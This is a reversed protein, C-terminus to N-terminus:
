DNPMAFWGSRFSLWESSILWYAVLWLLVSLATNWLLVRGLRVHSPAGRWGGPASGSTDPRIGIPLVVFLATWWILVFVLIGSVWTM